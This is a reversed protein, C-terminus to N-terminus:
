GVCWACEYLWRLRERVGFYLITICIHSDLECDGSSVSVGGM